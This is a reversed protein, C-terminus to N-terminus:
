GAGSRAPIRLQQGTHVRNGDLDNLERLKMVSVGYQNAINLLREGRRVIHIQQTEDASALQMPAADASAMPTAPNPAASALMQEDDQDRMAASARATRHRDQVHLAAYQTGPLPNDIFYGRVGSLVANALRSRYAPDNLHQEEEPNTIFATEVLMSPVDPSRLVVFNASEPHSKHTRGIDRLAQHVREAADDSAKMTASQSLDLLVSALTNDKDSLSVGGILDAANERDALWRAAQSTVGRQSLVWVSSGTATHTPDADAHISIFLDAKAARAKHYREALPVFYDGDRTLVAQMGPEANIQRALERATALTVNKEYSGNYGKAGVDQGGHGADVAIVIKRQGSGLVDRLTRAGPHARQTSQDAREAADAADDDQAVRDVAPGAPGPDPLIVATSVPPDVRPNLKRLDATGPHKAPHPLDASKPANAAGALSDDSTSAAINSVGAPPQKTLVAVVPDPKDSDPKAADAATLLEVVLQTHGNEDHFYSRPRVPASLEFVVRADGPNPQGTRVNSVVGDPGSAQFHKGFRSDHLDLVLRSPSALTFVSYDTGDPVDILARTHGGYEVVTMGEIDAANAAPHAAQALGSCALLLAASLASIVSNRCM